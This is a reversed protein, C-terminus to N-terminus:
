RLEGADVYFADLVRRRRRRRNPGPRAILVSSLVLQTYRIRFAHPDAAVWVSRGRQIAQHFLLLLLLRPLASSLPAAAAAAALAVRIQWFLKSIM